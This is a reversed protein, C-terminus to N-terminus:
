TFKRWTESFVAEFDRIQRFQTRCGLNPQAAV